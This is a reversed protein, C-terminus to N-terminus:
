LRGDGLGSGRCPRDGSLRGAEHDPWLAGAGQNSHGGDLYIFVNRCVVLDVSAPTLERFVEAKNAINFRLFRVKRAIEDNLRWLEGHPTFYRHKIWEETHRFSWNGYIRNKAAQIASPNIDTGFITVDWQSLDQPILDLLIALTYPEEGTSCGASWIALRRLSRNHQILRPFLRNQILSLQGQDRFFYSEGVTLSRSIQGWEDGAGASAGNELTRVYQEPSSFRGARVRDALLAEVETKRDPSIKLGTERAVVRSFRTVLDPTIPTKSFLIM